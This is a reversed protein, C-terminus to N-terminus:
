TRSSAEDVGMGRSATGSHRETWQQLRHPALGARRNECGPPEGMNDLCHTAARKLPVTLPPASLKEARMGKALTLSLTDGVYVHWRMASTHAVALEREQSSYTTYPSLPRRKRRRTRRWRMMMDEEIKNNALSCGSSKVHM